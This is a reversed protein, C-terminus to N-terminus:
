IGLRRGDSPIDNDSWLVVYYTLHSIGIGLYNWHWDIVLASLVDELEEM